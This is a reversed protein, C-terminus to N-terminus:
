QLKYFGQGGYFKTGTNTWVTQGPGKYVDMTSSNQTIKFAPSCEAGNDQGRGVSWNTFGSLAAPTFPLMITSTTANSTGTISPNMAWVLLDGVIKYRCVMTPNVSFGTPTSTWRLWRTETIPEQILNSNDYAPVSWTFGAGASLTAAFRGIVCVDDTSTYNTFNRLHKEDTSTTSFDSVLRGFPIRAPAIAVISSNSDWIAYMFLDQEITALEAGGLNMWNTGAALTVTTAATVKRVTGNINIYVPDDASPTGDSSTKLTIVLDNSSVAPSIKGNLMQGPSPVGLATYLNLLKAWYDQTSGDSLPIVYTKPVTTKEGGPANEILTM